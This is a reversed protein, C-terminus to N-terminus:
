FRSLSWNITTGKGDSWSGNEKNPDKGAQGEAHYTGVQMPGPMSMQGKPGGVTTTGMFQGASIDLSVKGDRRSFTIVATGKGDEVIETSGKAGSGGTMRHAICQAQSGEVQCSMSMTGNLSWGGGGSGAASGSMGDSMTITIIGKWPGPCKPGAISAVLARAFAELRDVANGDAPFRDSLRAVAKAAATDQMFGSVNLVGQSETVSVSIVYGTGLADALSKLTASDDSGTLLAKQRQVDLLNFADDQTLTEACPFRKKLEEDVFNQLARAAAEAQTGAEGKRAPVDTKSTHTTFIRLGQAAAPAAVLLVLMVIWLARTRM